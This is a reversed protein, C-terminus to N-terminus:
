YALASRIGVRHRRGPRGPMDLLLGAAGPRSPAGPGLPIPLPPQGGQYWLATGSCMQIEQVRGDHWRVSLSEWLTAADKLRESLSPLRRGKLRPRGLMGPQRKPPADHLVADLRLPAILRLACQRCAHALEVVSYAQDGLVTIAAHPLWRRTVRIMQRAWQAITKHRLGLRESVGPTPAPLSLVPLAWCRRNWPPTSVARHWPTATTAASRSAPDGAGSWPKM